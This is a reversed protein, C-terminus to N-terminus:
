KYIKHRKISTLFNSAPINEVVYLTYSGGGNM